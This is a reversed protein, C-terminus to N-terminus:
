RKNKNKNSFLFRLHFFSVSYDTHSLDFSHSFTFGFVCSSNQTNAQSKWHDCFGFLLWVDVDIYIRYTWTKKESLSLVVDAAAAARDIILVRQFEHLIM